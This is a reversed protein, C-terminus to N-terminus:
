GSASPSVKASRAAKALLPCEACEGRACFERYLHLLGQQRRASSVQRAGAGVQSAMHKEISNTQLRPFARYLRVIRGGSGRRSNDMEWALAFPLMINVAIDAARSGGVLHPLPRLSPRGLDFHCRWYPDAPVILSRVLEEPRSAAIGAVITHIQREFLSDVLRSMAMMRRAPTNSARIGGLHWCGGSMGEEQGLRAWLLEMERVRPDHGSPAGRQSPLLGATGLLLAEREVPTRAERLRPLPLRRALEVFPLQNQSYGLAGMIGQYLCEEPAAERLLARFRATKVRFREEGLRGLVRGLAGVVTNQCPLTDADPPLLDCTYRALSLTSVQGGNQLRAPRQDERLVVHLIVSNYAPDRHHGHQWWDSSRSHIEIDGRAVEGGRSIVADLCDAGTGPNLRGPSIVRVPVGDETVLDPRGALQRWLELIRREPIAGRAGGKGM